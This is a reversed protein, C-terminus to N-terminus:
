WTPLWGSSPLAKRLVDDVQSSTMRPFWDPDTLERVLANALKQVSPQALWRWTRYVLNALLQRDDPYFDGTLSRVYDPGGRRLVDIAEPWDGAGGFAGPADELDDM